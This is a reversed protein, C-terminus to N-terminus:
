MRNELQGFIIDASIFWNESSKNWNITQVLKKITDDVIYYFSFSAINFGQPLM